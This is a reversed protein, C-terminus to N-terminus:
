QPPNSEILSLNGHTGLNTTKGTPERDASAIDDLAGTAAMDVEVIELERIATLDLQRGIQSLADLLV